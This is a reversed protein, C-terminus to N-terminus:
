FPFEGLIKIQLWYKVSGKNHHRYSQIVRMKKNALNLCRAFVVLNEPFGTNQSNTTHSNKDSQQNQNRGTRL